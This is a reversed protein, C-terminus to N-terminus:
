IIPDRKTVIQVKKESKAGSSPNQVVITVFHPTATDVTVEFTKGDTSLVPKGDYLLQKVLGPENPQISDV